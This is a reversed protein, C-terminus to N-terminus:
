PSAEGNQSDARPVRAQSQSPSAVVRITAGDALRDLHSTVVRDGPRIEGRVVIRDRVVLAVTARKARAKDNEVVLVDGPQALSVAKHLMLNDGARAKVTLASGCLESEPWIAKIKHSLAGRKGMAEHITATQIKGIKKILGQDPRTVNKVVDYM